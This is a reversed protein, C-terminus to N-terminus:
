SYKKNSTITRSFLMGPNSPEIVPDTPDYTVTTVTSIPQDSFRVEAIHLWHILTPNTFEIFYSSVRLTAQLPISVRTLSECNQMNSTLTVSGVSPATRTFSPYTTSDYVNITTAGIQWAPCYLVYLEVEQLAVCSQLTFGLAYSTFSTQITFLQSAWNGRQSTDITPIMGDILVGTITGERETGICDCRRIGSAEGVCEQPCGGDSDSGNM